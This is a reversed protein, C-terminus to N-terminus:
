FLQWLHTIRKEKVFLCINCIQQSKQSFPNCTINGRAFIQFFGLEQKIQKKMCFIITQSHTLFYFLKLLFQDESSLMQFHLNSCTEM